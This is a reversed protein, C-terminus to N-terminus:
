RALKKYLFDIKGERKLRNIDRSALDYALDQPRMQMLDYYYYFANDHLKQIKKQYFKGNCYARNTIKKDIFKFLESLLYALIAAGSLILFNM